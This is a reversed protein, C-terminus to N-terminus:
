KLRVAVLEDGSRAYLVGGAYAPAARWGAGSLRLRGLERYEAPDAAFLVLEGTLRLQLVSGTGLQTGSVGLLNGYEADAKWLVTKAAPDVCVLKAPDRREQGSLGYLLGDGFGVPTAYHGAILFEGNYAVDAAGATATLLM